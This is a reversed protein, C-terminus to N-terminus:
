AAGLAALDAIEVAASFRVQVSHVTTGSSKGATASM